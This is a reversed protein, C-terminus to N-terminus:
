YMDFICLLSGGLFWQEFGIRGIEGLGGELLDGVGVGEVAVGAEVGWCWRWRRRGEYASAAICNEAGRVRRFWIGAEEGCRGRRM